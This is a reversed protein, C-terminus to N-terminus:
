FLFVYSELLNFNFINMVHVCFIRVPVLIDLELDPNVNGRRYQSLIVCPIHTTKLLSVRVIGFSQLQIHEDMGDVRQVSRLVSLVNSSLVQVCVFFSSM